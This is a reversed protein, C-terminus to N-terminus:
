HASLEKILGPGRYILGTYIQLLNAGAEIKERASERDDIGGVGIIPLRTMNRLSRILASSRMRLPGGSLGGAEDNDGTLASHDLTTNTAILGSIQSAECARVIQQLADDSLDPAIKLLVPKASTQRSNEETLLKLLDVLADYEQLSRLGPTNPSSVNIAIYDAVPALRRFSYLYDSGAESM